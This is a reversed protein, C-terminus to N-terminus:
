SLLPVFRNPPRRQRNSRCLIPSLQQPTLNNSYDTPIPLPSPFDDFDNVPPLKCECDPIHHKRLQDKQRRLLQKDTTKVHYSVPGTVCYSCDM